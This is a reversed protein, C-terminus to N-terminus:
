WESYVYRFPPKRALKSQRPLSKMDDIDLNATLQGETKVKAPMTQKRNTLPRCEDNSHESSIDSRVENHNTIYQQLELPKTKAHGHKLSDYKLESSSVSTNSNDKPFAQLTDGSTVDTIFIEPTVQEQKRRSEPSKKDIKIDNGYSRIIFQNGYKKGYHASRRRKTVITASCIVILVLLVAGAVLGVIFIKDILDDKEDKVQNTIFYTSSPNAGDQTTPQPTKASTTSSISPTTPARQVKCRAEGFLSSGIECIFPLQESYCTDPSISVSGEKNLRSGRRLSFCYLLPDRYGGNGKDLNNIVSRFVGSWYTQPWTIIRNKCFEQSNEQNALFGQARCNENSINWSSRTDTMYGYGCAGHLETVCPRSSFSAGSPLCDLQSCLCMEQQPCLSNEPTSTAKRFVSIVGEGGCYEAENGPCKRNCSLSAQNGPSEEICFCTNNKLGVYRSGQCVKYCVSAENSDSNDYTVNYQIEADEFCGTIEFWASLTRHEGVWFRKFPDIEKCNEIINRNLTTSHMLKGNYNRCVNRAEVWTREEEFYLLEKIGNSDAVSFGHIFYVCIIVTNSDM